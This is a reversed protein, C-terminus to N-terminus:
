EARWVRLEGDLGFAGLIQMLEKVTIHEPLAGPTATWSNVTDLFERSSAGTEPAPTPVLQLQAPEPEPEPEAPHIQPLAARAEAELEASTKLHEPEPELELPRMWKRRKEPGTPTWGLHWLVVQSTHAGMPEDEPMLRRLQAATISRGEWGELAARAKDLSRKQPRSKIIRDGLPEGDTPWSVGARKLRARVNKAERVDSGTFHLMTTSQDPLRLLVGKTTRTVNVGQPEIHDLLRAIEKRSM